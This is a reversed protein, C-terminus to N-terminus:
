ERRFLGSLMGRVGAWNEKKMKFAFHHVYGKDFWLSYRRELLAQYDPVYTSVPIWEAGDRIKYFDYESAKALYHYWLKDYIGYRMRIAFNEVEIRSDPRNSLGEGAWLYYGLSGDVATFETHMVLRVTHDFDASSRFQEDLCGAKETLSKRFMYFPGFLFRRTAESRPLTTTDKWKGETGGFEPVVKYKGHVLGIDPHADLCAAQKEISDPTRLDDLNWIALYDGTSNRICNNWSVSYPVVKEQVTYRLHGPYKEQFEEVACLERPTPENLDIVVELRDFATQEAANQLFRPLYKEGRYCSTLTSVVPRSM